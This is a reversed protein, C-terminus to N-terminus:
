RAMKKGKKKMFCHYGKLKGKLAPKRIKKKVKKKDLYAQLFQLSKVM